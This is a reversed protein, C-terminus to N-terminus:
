TALHPSLHPWPQSLVGPVTNYGIETLGSPGVASCLHALLWLSPIESFIQQLSLPLCHISLHPPPLLFFSFFCFFCWLQLLLLLQLHEMMFCLNMADQPPGMSSCFALTLFFSFHLNIMWTNIMAACGENGMGWEYPLTYLSAILYVGPCPDPSMSKKKWNKKRM